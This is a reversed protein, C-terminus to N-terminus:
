IEAGDQTITLDDGLISPLSFDATTETPSVTFDLFADNIMDRLIPDTAVDEMQCTWGLPDILDVDPNACDNLGSLGTQQSSSTDRSQSETSHHIRDIVDLCLTASNSHRAITELCNRAVSISVELDNLGETMVHGQARKKLYSAELVLVAQFIFYTAYWSIGPHLDTDATTCFSSISHITEMAAGLYCEKSDTRASLYPHHRKAGRWLLIRLNQEKWLVISRPGLFWSPVDPSTFYTPLCNRWASLKQAMTEAIQYEIKQNATKACLFEHYIGNAVKALKAQAILASYTTPIDVPLSVLSSENCNQDDINRPLAQDTCGELVAMPRGTTIGFGSDFCYVIWFIQRYREFLLKDEASSRERHLGLGFAIRQALGILSYGTNPRDRKQLYNGMLLLGQVTRITGAELLQMSIRSKAASYYPCQELSTSDNLLWHGIALVMYYIIRWTTSSSVHDRNSLEERFTTEHIIPYSTNYMQFYADVLSATVASSILNPPDIYQRSNNTASAESRANERPRITTSPPLLAAIEQLIDSGSSRGLYGANRNPLIAMGDKCTSLHTKNTLGPQPSEHWEYEGQAMISEEMDSVTSPADPAVHVKNNLATLEADIDLDPNYKRLLTRLQVCLRMRAEQAALRANKVISAPM